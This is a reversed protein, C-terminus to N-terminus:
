GQNKSPGFLLFYTGHRMADRSHREGRQYYGWRHLKEDTSWKKAIQASQTYYPINRQICLTKLCGIIQLTPVESNAHEDVKWNYVRYSEFVVVNPQVATLLGTLHSVAIDIPWTKIQQAQKLQPIADKVSFHAVGTTEGPDLALLEGRFKHNPANAFTEPFQM